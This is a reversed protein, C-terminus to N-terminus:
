CATTTISFDEVVSGTAQGSITAPDDVNAFNITAALV